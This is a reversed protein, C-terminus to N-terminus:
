EVSRLVCAIFACARAAPRPWLALKVRGRRGRPLVYDARARCLERIREPAEGRRAWNALDLEALDAQSAEVKLGMDEMVWKAARLLEVAEAPTM